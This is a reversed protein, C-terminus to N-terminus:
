NMEAPQGHWDTELDNIDAPRFSAPRELLELRLRNNGARRGVREQPCIAPCAM